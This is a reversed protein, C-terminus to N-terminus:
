RTMAPQNQFRNTKQRQAEEKWEEWTRTDNNEKMWFYAVLGQTALTGFWSPVVAPFPTIQAVIYIFEGELYNQVANAYSDFKDDDVNTGTSEIDAKAAEMDGSFNEAM